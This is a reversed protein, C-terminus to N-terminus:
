MLIMFSFNLPKDEQLAELARARTGVLGSAPDLVVTRDCAQVVAGVRVGKVMQGMTSTQGTLGLSNIRVEIVPWTVLLRGAWPEAGSARGGVVRHLPQEQHQERSRLLHIIITHHLHTMMVEGGVVTVVEEEEVVM